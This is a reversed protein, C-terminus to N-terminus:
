AQQLWCAFERLSDVCAVPGFELLRERPQAGYAAAVAPVRANRAMQMDHISDGIMLTEQRETGLVDIIEDIMQPHPKSFAEDACRSAAFYQALGSAELARDLGRRSKGTAVALTYGAAYLEDIVERADDFLPAAAAHYRAYRERYSSSFQEARSSPLGPYLAEIAENLGLGIVGRLQDDQLHEMRLDDITARLSSVILDNSDSLTGDWDFILLRFPRAGPKGAM